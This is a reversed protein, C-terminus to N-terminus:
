MKDTFVYRRNFMELYSFNKYVPFSFSSSYFTDKSFAIDCYQGVILIYQLSSLEGIGVLKESHLRKMLSKM